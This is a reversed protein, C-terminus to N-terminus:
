CHDKAQIHLLGAKSPLPPDDNLITVTVATDPSLYAGPSATLFIEFSKNAEPFVNDLALRGVFEQISNQPDFMISTNVAEYDEGATTHTHTCTHTYTYMLTYPFMHARM